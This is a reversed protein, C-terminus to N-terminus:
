SNTTAEIRKLIYDGAYQLDQEVAKRAALPDRRKLAELLVVHPHVELPVFEEEYIFRLSPGCRLWLSRVLGELIPMCAAQMVQSHFRENEQLALEINRDRKHQMLRENTLTLTDIIPDDDSIKSALEAAANGELQLRLNLIETYTVPDIVPVHAVGRDDLVLAGESVLRQIADRVPTPSIGFEEAITRFVLREGSQLRGQMIASRIEKYAIESLSQQGGIPRFSQVM